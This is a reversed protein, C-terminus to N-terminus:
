RIQIFTLIYNFKATYSDTNYGNFVSVNTKEHKYDLALTKSDSLTLICAAGGLSEEYFFDAYDTGSTDRLYLTGYESGDIDGRVFVFYRGKPITISNAANTLYIENVGLTSTGTLRSQTTSFTYSSNNLIWEGIANGRTKPLWFAVGNADCMLVNNVAQTGDNINISGRVDLKATPTNTGVGVRGSAGISMDNNYRDANATTNDGAGDVHFLTNPDETNIGVKNQATLFSCLNTLFLCLLIFKNKKM